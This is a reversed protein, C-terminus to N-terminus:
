SATATPKDAGCNWCTEFTGPVLEGCEGCTWEPLGAAATIEQRHHEILALARPEDADETVWLEPYVEVFPVEGMVGAAGLNRISCEIGAEELMSRYHGVKHFSLSEYVKKM